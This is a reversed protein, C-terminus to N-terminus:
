KRDTAKAESIGRIRASAPSYMSRAATIIILAAKSNKSITGNKRIYLPMMM